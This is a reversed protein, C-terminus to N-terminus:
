HSSSPRHPRMKRLSAGRKNYSSLSAAALYHYQPRPGAALTAGITALDIDPSPIFDGTTDRGPPELSIGDLDVDFLHNYRRTRSAM